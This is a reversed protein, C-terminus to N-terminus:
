VVDATTHNQLFRDLPKRWGDATYGALTFRPNPNGAILPSLRTVLDTRYLCLVPLGQRLAEAIEFGTGLSPTTAEAVVVDARALLRLDREYIDRDTLEAESQVFGNDTVHLTLVDHGDQALCAVIQQNTALNDRGGRMAAAFYIKM